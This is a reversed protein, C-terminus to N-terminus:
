RFGYEAIGCVMHRLETKKSFERKFLSDDIILAQDRRKDTFKVSMTSSDFRFWGLWDDDTLGRIM